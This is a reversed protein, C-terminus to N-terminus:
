KGGKCYLSPDFTKENYYDEVEDEDPIHGCEDCMLWDISGEPDFPDQVEIDIMKINKDEKNLCVKCNM